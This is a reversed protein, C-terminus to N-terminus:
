EVANARDVSAQYVAIVEDVGMAKVADVYSDWEDLSRTGMIFASMNEDFYTKLDAAYTNIVENEAESKFSFTISPNVVYNSLTKAMERVTDCEKTMYDLQYSPLGAFNYGAKNLYNDDNTLYVDTFVYEGDVINYDVGETGYWTQIGVEESQLYDCFAFVLEPNECYTTIGFLSGMSDRGYVPQDGYPGTLPVIPVMIPEDVNFQYDPNITRSYGTCNSIFHVISGIQNSSFLATQMDLNATAYENYLLGEEYIQHAWTLFEKYRDDIYGCLVKGDEGVQYGGSDTLDLGWYMGWLQIMGSRMFLPIEDSADGNGNVDNEKIAKLFEYYDDMTKLDDTTMNLAELYSQNVMLCRMNSDTTYIYPLYYMSGDPTTLEAKLTPHKEFQKALNFGYKDYMETLDIFLGSNIYSMDADGGSLQVLDPLDVGAALRPKVVDAYSSTDILEFDITVNAKKLVEQWWTMSDFDNILSAGNTSLVSITAPEASVPATGDYDIDALAATASFTLMLALLMSLWVKVPRKM